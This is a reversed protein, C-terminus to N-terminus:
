SSASGSRDRKHRKTRTRSRSRSDEYKRRKPPSRSRRPPSSRKGGPELKHAKQVSINQGQFQTRNLSQIADTADRRKAFDVYAFKPKIRIATIKGYKEFLERIEREDVSEVGGVWVTHVSDRDSSRSRRGM